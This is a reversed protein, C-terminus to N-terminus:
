KKHHNNPFIIVSIVHRVSSQIFQPFFPFLYSIFLTLLQECFLVGIRIKPGEFYYRVWFLQYFVGNKRLSFLRM